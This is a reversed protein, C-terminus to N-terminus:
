EFKPLGILQTKNTIMLGDSKHWNQKIEDLNEGMEDAAQEASTVWGLLRGVIVNLALMIDKRFKIHCNGNKFFKVEFAEELEGKTLNHEYYHLKEGFPM